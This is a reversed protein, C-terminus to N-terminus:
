NLSGRLLLSLLIDISLQFTLSATSPCVKVSTFIGPPTKWPDESEGSVNKM